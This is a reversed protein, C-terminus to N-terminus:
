EQLSSSCRTYTKYGSTRCGVNRQRVILVQRDAKRGVKSDVDEENRGAAADSKVRTEGGTEINTRRM